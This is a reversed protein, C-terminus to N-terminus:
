FRIRRERKILVNKRKKSWVIKGLFAAALTAVLLLSMIITASFEPVVTVTGQVLGDPSVEHDILDGLPDGLVTENLHLTCDGVVLATFNITMMIGNGGTFPSWPPFAAAVWVFGDTVNQLPTWIYESDVMKGPAYLTGPPNIPGPTVDTVNLITKNFWLKFEYGQLDPIDAITVNVAFSQGPTPVTIETPNLSITPLPDARVPSAVGLLITSSLVILFIFSFLKALRFRKLITKEKRQEYYIWLSIL